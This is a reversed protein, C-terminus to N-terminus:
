TSALERVEPARLGDEIIVARLRNEYVVLVGLDHVSM